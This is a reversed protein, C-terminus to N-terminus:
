CIFGLKCTAWPNAPPGSLTIHVSAQTGNGFVYFEGGLINRGGVVTAFAPTLPAGASGPVVGPSAIPASGSTVVPSTTVGLGGASVSGSHCIFARKQDIRVTAQCTFSVPGVSCFQGNNITGSVTVQDGVQLRNVGASSVSASLAPTTQKSVKFSGEPCTKSFVSTYIQAVGSTVKTNKKDPGCSSFLVLVMFFIGLSKFHRLM